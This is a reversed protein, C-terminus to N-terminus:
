RSPTNLGLGSNQYNNPVLTRNRILVKVQISVIFRSGGFRAVRDWTAVFLLTPTFSVGFAESINGGVEQILSEDVAFCFYIDGAKRINM